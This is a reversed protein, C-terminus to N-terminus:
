THASDARGGAPLSSRRGQQPFVPMELSSERCWFNRPGLQDITVSGVSLPAECMEAALETQYVGQWV